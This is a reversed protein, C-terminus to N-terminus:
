RASKRAQLHRAKQFSNERGERMRLINDKHRYIILGGLILMLIVAPGHIRGIQFFYMFLGVVPMAVAAAISALAVIRTKLFTLYWVVACCLVPWFVVGLVAGLSTAVGKGGKFKLTWPFVHGLVTGVVAFIEGWEFGVCWQGGLVAGLYIVPMLGKLFDLAFCVIGWDSGLVRRVNTAGINHSGHRRIDLGNFKGILYGFPIGGVLYCMLFICFGSAWFRCMEM